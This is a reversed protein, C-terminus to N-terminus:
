ARRRRLSALRARVKPADLIESAPAGLRRRWNPHEDITGPVNPQEALGLIDEIPILALPAPSRAAFAIAADVAQADNESDPEDAAVVGAKRFARWLASRDKAREREERKRDAVLGLADRAAIDVGKWWGAVPPLDHTTTM